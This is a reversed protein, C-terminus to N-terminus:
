PVSRGAIHLYVILHKIAVVDPLWISIKDKTSKMVMADVIALSIDLPCPKVIQNTNEFFCCEALDSVDTAIFPVGLAIAEKIINPWGEHTSTLAVLDAAHMSSLVEKRPMGSMVNLTVQLGASQCLAVAREVLWTRKVPNAAMLSGILIEFPVNWNTPERGSTRHEWFEEGIPDPIVVIQRGTMFPWRLLERRMRNSMVIIVDARLCAVFTMVQRAFSEIRGFISRSPLRYFDTGRLSLISPKTTFSGLLGTLSGFQAHVLDVDQESQRLEAILTFASAIKPRLPIIAEKISVLSLLGEKVDGLFMGDVKLTNHVWLVTIIGNKNITPGSTM